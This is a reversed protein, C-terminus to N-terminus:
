RRKIDSKAAIFINDVFTTHISYVDWVIGVRTHRRYLINVRFRASIVTVTFITVVAFGYSIFGLASSM